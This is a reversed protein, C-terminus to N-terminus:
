PRYDVAVKARKLLGRIERTMKCKSAELEWIFTRLLTDKEEQRKINEQPVKRALFTQSQRILVKHEKNRTKLYYERLIEGHLAILLQYAKILNMESVLYKESIDHSYLGLDQYDDMVTDYEAVMYLLDPIDTEILQKICELDKYKGKQAEQAKEQIAELESDNLFAPARRRTM